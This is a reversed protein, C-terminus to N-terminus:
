TGANIGVVPIRAGLSSLARLFTGDGGVSVVLSPAQLGPRCLDCAVACDEDHGHYEDCHIVKRHGNCGKCSGDARGVFLMPDATIIGVRAFAVTIDQVLGDAKGDARKYIGVATM